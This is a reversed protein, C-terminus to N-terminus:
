RTTPLSCRPLPRWYRKWLCIMSPSSGSEWVPKRRRRSRPSIGSDPLILSFPYCRFDAASGASIMTHSDGVLATLRMLDLLFEVDSETELRSEIDKKLAQFASEPANAFANPHNEVLVTQYLFELDERRQEATTKEPEAALAATCLLSAALLFAASRRLFQKATKM